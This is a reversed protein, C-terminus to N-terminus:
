LSILSTLIKKTVLFKKKFKDDSLMLFTISSFAKTWMQYKLFYKAYYDQTSNHIYKTSYLPIVQTPKFNAIVKARPNTYYSTITITLSFIINSQFNNLLTIPNMNSTLTEQNNLHVMWNWFWFRWFSMSFWFKSFVAQRGNQILIILIMLLIKQIKKLFCLLHVNLKMWSCTLYLWVYKKKRQNNFSEM